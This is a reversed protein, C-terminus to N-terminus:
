EVLLARVYLHMRRVIRRMLPETPARGVADGWSAVIDSFASHGLIKAGLKVSLNKPLNGILVYISKAM